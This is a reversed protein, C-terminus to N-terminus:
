APSSTSRWKRASDHDTSPLSGFRPSTSGTCTRLSAALAEGSVKTAAYPSVPALINADEAFPTRERWLREVFSGVGLPQDASRARSWLTPMLVNQEVYRVPM